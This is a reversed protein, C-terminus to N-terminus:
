PREPYDVTPAIVTVTGDSDFTLESLWMTRGPSDLGVADPSWAHYIMWTRGNKEVMESGGPGSAVDNTVLIPEDDKTFPGVPSDAVAHGEAYEPSDFANASYFLHFQGHAAWVFPAEVLTGEWPLTQKILKRARGLLRTGSADLRQVWLYTDKGVDNGDNKWYLYRTGDPARFPSPDISGGLSKDCILPGKSKDVYPGQPKTAVAASICQVGPAPSPGRTTYYLVSRSPSLVAVEPAWVKGPSSWGPLQPLADASQEWSTLDQSKATQVNSGNGNTAFAWFQGGPGAVVMPDPFNTDYVPNTFGAGPVAPGASSATPTLDGPDALGSCATLLALTAALAAWLRVAKM